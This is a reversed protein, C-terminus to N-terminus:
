PREIAQVLESLKPWVRDDPVPWKRRLIYTNDLLLLGPHHSMRFEHHVSGDPDALLPFPIPLPSSACFGNLTHPHDCIVLAVPTGMLAFKLAHRQLWLIRRVSTPQWIDGVFGLLVGDTGIIQDLSTCQGSHDRLQFNPMMRNLSPGLEVTEYALM